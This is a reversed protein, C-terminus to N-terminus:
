SRLRVIANNGASTPVKGGPTSSTGTRAAESMLRPSRIVARRCRPIARMARRSLRFSVAQPDRETAARTEDPTACSGCSGVRGAARRSRSRVRRGAPGSPAMRSVARAQATLPVAAPIPYPDLLPM